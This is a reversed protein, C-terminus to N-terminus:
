RCYKLVHLVISKLWCQSLIETPHIGDTYLKFNFNCHHAHQKSGHSRYLDLSFRPSQVLNESNIERIRENVLAIQHILTQDDELFSDPFPHGKSTNWGVITYPPCELFSYTFNHRRFLERFQEIFYLISRVSSDTKSNLKIYKGNKNTLDCTGLWILFHSNRNFTHINHKVYYYQQRFTAGGRCIYRFIYNRYIDVRRLYSGKSDSILIIQKQLHKDELPIPKELFKRIKRISM